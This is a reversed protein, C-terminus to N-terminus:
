PSSFFSFLFVYVFIDSGAGDLTWCGDVKPGFNWIRWPTTESGGGCAFDLFLLLFWFYVDVEGFCFLPVLPTSSLISVADCSAPLKARGRAWPPSICRTRFYLGFTLFCLPLPPPTFSLHWASSCLSCSMVHCCSLVLIHCSVVIDCLFFVSGLVFHM